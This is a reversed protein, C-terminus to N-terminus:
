ADQLRVLTDIMQRAQEGQLSYYITQSARRTSVLGERRLIALHQSLASQSLALRQNLETVSLESGDLLCLIRLRNDNALAKLLATAQDIAPHGAQLLRSAANHSTSM